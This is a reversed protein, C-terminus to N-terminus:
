SAVAAKALMPFTIKIINMKGNKFL